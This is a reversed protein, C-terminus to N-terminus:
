SERGRFSQRMLTHAKLEENDEELLNYLGVTFIHSDFFHYLLDYFREGATFLATKDIFHSRVHQHRRMREYTMCEIIGDVNDHIVQLVVKFIGHTSLDVDPYIYVDDVLVFGADIQV